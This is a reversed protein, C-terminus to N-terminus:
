AHVWWHETDLGHGVDVLYSVMAQIVYDWIGAPKLWRKNNPPDATRVFGAVRHVSGTQPDFLVAECYRDPNVRFTLTVEDIVKM